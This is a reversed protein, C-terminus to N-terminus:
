KNKSIRWGLSDVLYERREEFTRTAEEIKREYEIKSIKIEHGIENMFGRKFMPVELRELQSNNLLQITTGTQLGEMMKTGMESQLYEYLM